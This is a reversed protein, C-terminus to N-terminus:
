ADTSEKKQLKKIGQDYSVWAVLWAVLGQTIATFAALAANQVEGTGLVYLAALGTSCLALILPIWADKNTIPLAKLVLGLGWVVPILALLEPKLYNMIQEM